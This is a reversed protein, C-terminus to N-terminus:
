TVTRGGTVQNVVVEGFAVWVGIGALVVLSMLIIYEVTSLGSEDDRLRVMQTSLQQILAILRNMGVKYRLPQRHVLLLACTTKARFVKFFCCLRLM